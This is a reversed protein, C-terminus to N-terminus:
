RIQDPAETILKEIAEIIPAILGEAFAIQDHVREAMLHSYAHRLQALHFELETM